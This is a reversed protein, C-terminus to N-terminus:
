PCVNYIFMGIHTHTYIYIYMHDYIPLYSQKYKCINAYVYMYIHTHTYTLMTDSCSLPLFCDCRYIVLLQLTTNLTAVSVNLWTPLWTM